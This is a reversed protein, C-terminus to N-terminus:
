VLGVVTTVCVVAAATEEALGVESTGNDDGGTHALNGRMGTSTEGSECHSRDQELCSGSQMMMIIRIDLHDLVINYGYTSPTFQGM